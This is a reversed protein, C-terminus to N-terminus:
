EKTRPVSPIKAPPVGSDIPPDGSERIKKRDGSDARHARAAAAASVRRPPAEGGLPRSAPRRAVVGRDRRRANLRERARPTEVDRRRPAKIGDLKGIPDSALM